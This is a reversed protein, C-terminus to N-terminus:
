PHTSVPYPVSRPVTLLRATRMRSSHKRAEKNKKILYIQTSLGKRYDQIPWKRTIYIHKLDDALYHSCIFKLDNVFYMLM